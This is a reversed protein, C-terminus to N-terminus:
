QVTSPIREGDVAVGLARLLDLRAMHVEVAARLAAVRVDARVREADLLEFLPIAGERYATAAITAVRAGRTDLDRLGDGAAGADIARDYEALLTAYARAAATVEADVTSQLARLEGEAMIVDGRARERNGGNRDFLPIAVGIAVTGTKYGSTRKSGVQVGLAPMTGLREALQRRSTEDVRARAALLESRHERAIALLAGLPPVAVGSDVRLSQTPRPVSDFPMALARALDGRARELEARASAETLRARDAELRARLAAGAPVAGQRARDGEIRAITDVAHRQTTAADHLAFALSTRWYARAVDFEVQRATTSSDQVARLATLASASRLAVRRGYLDIPLAATVFEDRALPSGLNEKRWELTPNPLAAEQRAAGATSQRRGGAAALLPHQRRALAAADALTFGHTTDRAGSVPQAHVSSALSIAVCTAVVAHAVRTLPELRSSIDATTFRM